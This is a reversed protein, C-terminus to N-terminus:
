MDKVYLNTRKQDNETLATRNNFTECITTPNFYCNNYCQKSNIALETQFGKLKKIFLGHVAM